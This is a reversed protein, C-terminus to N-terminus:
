CRRSRSSTIIFQPTQLLLLQGVMAATAQGKFIKDSRDIFTSIYFLGLLALFSLGAVRVYIRSIYRDILSPMPAHIRPVRVVLVVGPRAGPADGASSSTSKAM